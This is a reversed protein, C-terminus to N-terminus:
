KIPWRYFGGVRHNWAIDDIRDVVVRRNEMIHIFQYENIMMGIHSIFNRFIRFTVLCEPEIAPIPEFFTSKQDIITNIISPDSFSQQAPLVIRKEREYLFSVLGYCDFEDPGRGGYKFPKGILDGYYIM